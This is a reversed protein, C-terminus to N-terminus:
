IGFTIRTNTFLQSVQEASLATNYFRIMGISGKFLFQPTTGDTSIRHGIAVLSTNSVDGSISVLSQTGSSSGNKYATLIDTTFNFVGVTQVWTNTSIGTIIFGPNEPVRWAAINLSTSNENYRFVYPYRPENTSNWKELVTALTPSPQGSSPNFWVEVSYSDTNNFNNIGDSSAIRGYQNTGNFTYGLSPSYTPSGSM